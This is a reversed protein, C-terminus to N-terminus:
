CLHGLIVPSGPRGEVPIRMGSKMVRILWLFVRGQVWRGPKRRFACIKYLSFFFMFIARKVSQVTCYKKDM